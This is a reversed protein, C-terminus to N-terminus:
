VIEHASIAVFGFSIEAAAIVVAVSIYGRYGMM